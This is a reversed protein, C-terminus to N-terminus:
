GRVRNPDIIYEWWNWRVGHSEGVARPFREMWWRHHKRIDGDGWDRCTMVRPEGSLDPFRLWNDARSPVPTTNGWDYDKASNPAFHVNGCEALGPNKKDYRIFREWLNADGRTQAYVKSLISEARHGFNELMEGVGREDNFGMIVFRRSAHQTGDLPPANCWFAGPGAMISEYFGCYPFGMLWVEDIQDADVREILKHKRVIDLYDAADPQHFQRTRWAGEFGDRTYRYGDQKLPFEDVDIRSVIEYNAVGGSVQAIDDRYGAALQDPDNWGYKKRIPVGGIRPNYIILLVRPRIPAPTEGTRAPTPTPVADLPHPQDGGFIKRLQDLM